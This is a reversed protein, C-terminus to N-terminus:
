ASAWGSSSVASVITIPSAPLKRTPSGVTVAVSRPIVSSRTETSVRSPLRCEPWNPPAAGSASAASIRTRSESRASSPEVM